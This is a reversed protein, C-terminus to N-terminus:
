QNQWPPMPMGYGPPATNWPSYQPPQQQQQQQQASWPTSQAWPPAPASPDISAKFEAYVDDVPPAPPAPAEGIESLFKDFESEMTPATSPIAGKGRLPCDSTPHSVEGCISCKVEAKTFSAETASPMWFRDRLTGNIEALERLQARKHENMGESVPVLLASIIKGARDLQAETDGTILVHLAEDEGPQPKGSKVKGEKVSGKGRIAIKCGTEREMKKQTNGRPGIILGIFNYEPYKDQPIFIKKTKKIQGPTYDAPPKFQPNMMMAVEIMAHRDAILKDKARQDRTNVRKGNVDYVPEPSPSREATYDIDLENLNLKKSIEDIRTRVVLAEIQETTFGQPIFKPIALLGTTPVLEAPGWKLNRKKKRQKRERARGRQEQNYQALESATPGNHHHGYGPFNLYGSM